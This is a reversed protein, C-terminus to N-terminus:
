DTASTPFSDSKRATNKTAIRYKLFAYRRLSRVRGLDHSAIVAGSWPLPRAVRHDRQGGPGAAALSRRRSNSTAQGAGAHRAISLATAALNGGSLLLRLARQADVYAAAHLTRLQVSGGGAPHVPVRPRWQGAGRRSDTARDSGVASGAGRGLERRLLRRPARRPERRTEAYDLSRSLDQAWMLVHDRYNRSTTQNDSDLGDGREYTSKYIPYVLARGSKLIFNFSNTPIDVSSRVHLAGSGPFLIIVQWPPPVSKPTFILAAMREERYAANFSVREVRWRDTESTSESRPDLPTKDYGYLGAYIRFAEEDVPHEKSYDRIVRKLPALLEPRVPQPYQAVRFGFTAERKLPLQADADNFMYIPESYAGGIIYRNPGDANWCWEKANGAMDYLGYGSVGANSGVRM